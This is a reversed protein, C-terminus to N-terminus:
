RVGTKGLGFRRVRIAAPNFAKKANMVLAAYSSASTVTQAHFFTRHATEGRFFKSFDKM